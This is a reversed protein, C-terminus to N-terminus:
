KRVVTSRGSRLSRFKFVTLVVYDPSGCSPDQCWLVFSGRRIGVVRESCSKSYRQGMLLGLRKKISVIDGNLSPYFLPDKRRGSLDTRPVHLSVGLGSYLKRTTLDNGEGTTGDYYSYRQLFFSFFLLWWRRPHTDDFVTM